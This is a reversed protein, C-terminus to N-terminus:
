IYIVRVNNPMRPFFKTFHEFVRQNHEIPVMSPSYGFYSGVKNIKKNYNNGQNVKNPNQEYVGSSDATHQVNPKKNNSGYYKKIPQPDNTNLVTKGDSSVSQVLVNDDTTISGKDHNFEFPWESDPIKGAISSFIFSILMLFNFLALTSSTM